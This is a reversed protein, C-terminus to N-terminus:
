VRLTKRTSKLVYARACAGERGRLVQHQALLASAGLRVGVGVECGHLQQPQLRTLAPTHTHSFFPLTHTQPPARPSTQDRPASTGNIEGQVRFGKYQM